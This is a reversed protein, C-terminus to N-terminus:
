PASTDRLLNDPIPDGTLTQLFALLDAKEQANLGLPAIEKTGDFTGPAGGGQDYFDVVEALTALGGTHMFPSTQAINRLSATRFAGHDSPNQTLASLKAQGAVPDDSFQSGGNFMNTRLGNIAGFRGEDQAPINPGTQSVGLNHFQNDTFAPGSHCSVCGGKGLFLKAGRKAADGIAGANGAVWKDFPANRSVLLRQYAGIAKAFNALITNVILQDGPTMGQFPPDAPRGSPPFRAHDPATPDLAADLKPTFISDYETRYANFIRHALTLRTANANSAGEIATGAVWNTDRGGNSNFWTYFVNNVLSTTNRTQFGNAGSSVNNPNSRTDIFWSQPMHCSSCAVRGTEGLMGLGGSVGSQGLPGASARDFFFRQGLVAAAPNDAYRNTTDAPIAALPSMSKLQQVQPATFGSFPDSGCACVTCVVAAIIGFRRTM